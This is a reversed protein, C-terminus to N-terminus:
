RIKAGFPCLALLALKLCQLGFPIGIISIFFIFAAVCYIIALWWGVFFLWLLNMIPHAGFDPDVDSGFPLFTLRAFKLCQLGFPIGIVTLCLLLGSILWILAPVFGVLLIWFINGIISM